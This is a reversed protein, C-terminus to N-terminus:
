VTGDKALVFKNVTNTGDSMQLITDAYNLLLTELAAVRSELDSTDPIQAELADLAAKIVKNQVPNESTDSLSSDVTVSQGTPITYTTGNYNVSQLDAM